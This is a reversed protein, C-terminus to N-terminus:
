ATPIIAFFPRGSRPAELIHEYLRQGTKGLSQCGLETKLHAIALLQGPAGSMLDLSVPRVTEILTRM